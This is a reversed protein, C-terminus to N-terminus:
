AKANLANISASTPNYPEQLDKYATKIEETSVATIPHMWTNNPVRKKQKSLNSKSTRNTNYCVPCLEAHDKRLKTSVHIYGDSVCMTSQCIYLWGNDVQIPDNQHHVFCYARLSTSFNNSRNPFGVVINDICNQVTTFHKVPSHKVSSEVLVKSVGVISDVFHLNNNSETTHEKKSEKASLTVEKPPPQNSTASQLSSLHLRAEHLSGVPAQVYNHGQLPNITKMNSMSIQFLQIAAAPLIQGGFGELFLVTNVYEGLTTTLLPFITPLLQLYFRSIAIFRTLLGM